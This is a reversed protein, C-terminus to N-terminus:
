VQLGSVTDVEDATRIRCERLLSEPLLRGRNSAPRPGRVVNSSATSLGTCSHKTSSAPTNSGQAEEQKEGEQKEGEQKEGEQKERGQKERGQKEGGKYSSLAAPACHPPPWPPFKLAMLRLALVNHQNECLCFGYNLVWQANSRAGYSNLLEQGALVPKADKDLVLSFTGRAHDTVWDMESNETHNFLDILPLLVGGPGSSRRRTRTTTSVVAAAAAAASSVPSPITREPFVRSAYNSYAWRWASESFIDAPFLAPHADTLLMAFTLYDQEFHQRRTAIQRGLETHSVLALEAAHWWLPDNLPAPPLLQLYPGWDGIPRRVDVPQWRHQEQQQQVRGHIMEALIIMKPADLLEDHLSIAEALSSELLAHHSLALKFPIEALVEGPNIADVAFVGRNSPEGSIRLKPSLYANNTKFWQKFSALAEQGRVVAQLEPNSEAPL